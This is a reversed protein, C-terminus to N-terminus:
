CYIERGREDDVEDFQENKLAYNEARFFPWQFYPEIKLSGVELVKM